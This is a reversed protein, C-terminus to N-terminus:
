TQPQDPAVGMKKLVAETIDRFVPAAHASGHAGTDDTHPDRIGVFVEVKPVKVPAFGIFGAFDAKQPGGMVEWDMLGISYSTATKGATTYLSSQAHGKGTGKEVVQRLIEKVQDSTEPSLVQRVVQPDSADANEPLMLKGGNAVAGYAQVMEIPTVAYGFGVSVFPVLKPHAPDDPPPLIGSRAEPFSKASGEPGFGFDALMKRIGKEGLEEGIKMSCIDSSLQITESTTLQKWGEKRWDHYVRGGYQYSGNECSHKEQPTTVKEEIAEAAVLTKAMSAPELGQALAWHAGLKKSRDINAVALIKGTNPDAVIAFGAAAKEKAVAQNLIEEAIEQIAPDVVVKGPNIPRLDNGRMLEEAGFALGMTLVVALTGLFAGTWAPSRRTEHSSFMEIRRRLFSKLEGPNKSAAAMYTTGVYIQRFGLATEAVRVLCSGYEHASVGKRGILAEDCSIEQFEVIRKKWFSIVPNLWFGCILAEIAIAWLTDGQRHHQLEHKVALRFDGANTLLNAPLIVWCARGLRMSFPIRTEDSIAIRVHGLKRITQATLSLRYLKRLNLAFRSSFAAFGLFILVLAVVRPDLEIWRSVSATTAQSSAAIPLRRIKIQTNRKLFARGSETTQRVTPWELIPMKRKPVISLGLPALISLLVLLQAFRLGSRASLKLRFFFLYSAVLLLNALFYFKM